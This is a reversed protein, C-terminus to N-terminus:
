VSLLLKMVLLLSSSWIRVLKHRRHSERSSIKQHKILVSNECSGEKLSPLLLSEEKWSSMGIISRSICPRQSKWMLTEEKEGGRLQIDFTM